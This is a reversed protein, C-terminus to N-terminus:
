AGGSTMSANALIAYAGAQNLDNNGASAPIIAM